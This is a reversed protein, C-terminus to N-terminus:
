GFYILTYWFKRESIEKILSEYNKTSGSDRLFESFDSQESSPAVAVVKGIVLPTYSTGSIM